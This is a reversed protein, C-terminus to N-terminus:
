RRFSHSQKNKARKHQQTGASHAASPISIQTACVRTDSHPRFAKLRVVWSYWIQRDTANIRIEDALLTYLITDIGSRPVHPRAKLIPGCTHAIGVPACLTSFQMMQQLSLLSDHLICRAKIYIYICVVHIYVYIDLDIDGGKLSRSEIHQSSFLAERYSQNPLRSIRQSSVLPRQPIGLVVTAM